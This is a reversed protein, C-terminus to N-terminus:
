RPTEIILKSQNKM